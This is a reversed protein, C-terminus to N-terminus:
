RWPASRIGGQACVDDKRPDGFLPLLKVERGQQEALGLRQPFTPTPWPENCCAEGLAGRQQQLSALRPFSTEDQFVEIAIRLQM